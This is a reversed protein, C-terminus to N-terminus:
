EEEKILSADLCDALARLSDATWWGAIFKVRGKEPDLVASQILDQPPDAKRKYSRNEKSRPM